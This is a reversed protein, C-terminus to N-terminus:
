CAKEGTDPDVLCKPNGQATVAVALAAWEHEKVGALVGPPRVWKAGKCKPCIQTLLMGKCKWQAIGEAKCKPCKKGKDASGIGYRDKLVGKIDADNTQCTGNLYLQVDRRYVYWPKVNASKAAAVFRGAWACTLFTEAGPKRTPGQYCPMEIAVTDHAFCLQKELEVNPLTAHVKVKGDPFIDVIASEFTGPDIGIM